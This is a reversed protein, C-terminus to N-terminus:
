EYDDRDFSSILVPEKPAPFIKVSIECRNPSPRDQTRLFITDYCWQEVKTKFIAWLEPEREANSAPAPDVWGVRMTVPAMWKRLKQTEIPDYERVPKAIEAELRRKLDHFWGNPVCDSLKEEPNRM